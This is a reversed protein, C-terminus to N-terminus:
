RAIFRDYAAQEIEIARGLNMKELNQVFGEFEDIPTQGMIFKVISESVYTTIESMIKSYEASEDVTLSVPPMLLSLDGAAWVADAEKQVDTQLNYQSYIAFTDDMAEYTNPKLAYKALAIDYTLGDPNHLIEDTLMPKGDVMEYSKGEIGFAMLLSGAESYHEDLWKVAAVPDKCATTIVAGFGTLAKAHEAEQQYAIGDAAKIWPAGVIQGTPVVEKLAANYGGLNGALSGFYSGAVDTTILSKVSAGDTAAFDYDILGEDYWKAMEALFDKYEPEAPRYVVKGDKVCFSDRVLGFGGAFSLLYVSLNSAGAAVFPIEDNPDGNGNADQEAFATLVAHWDEITEPM